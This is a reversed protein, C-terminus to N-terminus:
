YNDKKRIDQWASLWVLIVIFISIVMSWMNQNHQNLLYALIVLLTTVARIIM